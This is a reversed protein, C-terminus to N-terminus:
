FKFGVAASVVNFDVLGPNEVDVHHPAYNASSNYHEYALSFAWHQWDKGLDARYSLAGYPSLRYDSSYYGDSSAANYYPQYFKAAGQEYYRVSPALKWGYPLSQHWSLEVTDSGVGWNDDFRRVDLHLAGRLSNYYQRLRAMLALSRRKDPRTDPVLTAAVYAEKYPDSLFGDSYTFSASLQVVTDPTLVQAFGLSANASNKSAALIRLPFRASGGDTPEMKDRSYGAGASLTSRQENFSWEADLGGSVSQYDKEKSVGLTIGQRGHETYHNGKVDLAARTDEITAGSMVQIPKGNVDPVIYWPSAGSMTEVALDASYGFEEGLPQVLHFQHSQVEYRTGDQGNTASSPLKAEAYNSFRYTGQTEPDAWAQAKGAYGPLCLATMTLAQLATSRSQKQKM